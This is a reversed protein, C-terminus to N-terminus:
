AAAIRDLWGLVAAVSDLRYTAATPRAPGALVGWGGHALAARFAPEDTLDDGVAVPVTRAFGPRAMFRTLASGKDDGPPRLEIMMRGPQIALGHRTALVTALAECAAAAEPALRYHLATGLPKREVLVGPHAAAHAEFAAAVLALEPPSPPVETEGPAFHLELGHSGAVALAPQGLRERVFGAARGSLVVLRGDLRRELRAILQQVRPAATVAEPRDALEVLTGDFDLFLSARDPLTAPPPAGAPITKGEVCCTRVLPARM